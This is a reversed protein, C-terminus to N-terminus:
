TVLSSVISIEEPTFNFLKFMIQDIYNEIEKIVDNTLLENNDVILKAFVSILHVWVIERDFIKNLSKLRNFFDDGILKGKRFDKLPYLNQLLSMLTKDQSYHLVPIKGLTNINLSIYGGRKYSAYFSIFYYILKSNLHGLLFYIDTTKPIIGFVGGHPTLLENSDLSFKAKNVVSNIILKKGQYNHPSGVRHLSYWPRKLEKWTKRSDKRQLLYKKMPSLLNMTKPFLKCLKVEEILKYEGNDIKYPFFVAYKTKPTRWKCVERPRVIRKWGLKEVKGALMENEVWYYDENVEIIEVFLVKDLGSTLPSCITFNNQNGLLDREGTIKQILGKELKSRIVWPDVTIESALLKFYSSHKTSSLNRFGSNLIEDVIKQSRISICQVVENKQTGMILIATYTTANEFVSCNTFDVIKTIGYHSSIFERLKMGYKSLFFQNSSIIGINGKSNILQFTREIFPIYIDSRDHMTSYEVKYFDRVLPSLLEVRIYPPNGIIIDFGPYIVKNMVVPFELVWHFFDIQDSYHQSGTYARNLEQKLATYQYQLKDNQQNTETICMEQFLTLKELIRTDNIRQLSSFGLLADGSRINRHLISEISDDSFDENSDMVWRKLRTRCFNINEQDIDVGYLSQIINKRLIFETKYPNVPQLLKFITNAFSILFNGTGVAPDLTQLKLLVSLLEKGAQQNKFLKRRLSPFDPIETNKYLSSVHILITEEVIFDCIKMPTTYAGLLKHKVIVLDRIDILVEM